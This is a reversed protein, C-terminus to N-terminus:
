QTDDKKKEKELRLRTLEMGSYVLMDRLTDEVTEDGVTYIKNSEYFGQLRAYKRTFNSFILNLPQKGSFYANGYDHNKKIFLDCSKQLEDAFTDAVKQEQLEKGSVEPKEAPEIMYFPMHDQYYTEDKILVFRQEVFYPLDFGGKVTIDKTVTHNEIEMFAGTIGYALQYKNLYQGEFFKMSQSNFFRKHTPDQFALTCEHHPVIIEIKAGWKMVRWIENMLHILNEIHEFTHATYIEDVSEDAFPLREHEFNVNYKAGSCKDVSDFGAKPNFGGGIDIKM